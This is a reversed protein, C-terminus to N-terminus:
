IAGFRRERRHFEEIMQALEKSTFDPWLTKTFFLEAYAARWLLFNSIRLDGGTRIMMDVDGLDADLFREFNTESLEV